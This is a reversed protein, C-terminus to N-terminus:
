QPEENEVSPDCYYSNSGYFYYFGFEYTEIAVTDEDQFIFETPSNSVLSIDPCHTKIIVDGLTFGAAISPEALKYIIRAPRPTGTTNRMNVVNPVSVSYPAANGSITITAYLDVYSTTNSM